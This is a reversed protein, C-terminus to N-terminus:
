QQNWIEWAKEAQLILMEYGNKISSGQMEGKNLFLTKEPNYVLDYLFHKGTLESYPIDPCKDINPYMGLPTTNIILENQSIINEDLESYTLYRDKRSVFTFEINLKNLVYKIAKSAGGTGLILARDVKTGGLFKRLSMEFGYADTNYGVRKGNRISITNVAGIDYAENSLEDLFPIVAEKYPITVNIGNVGDDLVKEVEQISELPYALYESNSIGLELFKNAFYSPSFTHGLPYGILGLKYGERKIKM